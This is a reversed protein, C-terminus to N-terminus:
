KKLMLLSDLYRKGLVSRDLNIKAYNYGNLGMQRTEDRHALMWRVKNAFDAPNEPETYLGAKSEEVLQRSIGDIAMLIPTQCGM